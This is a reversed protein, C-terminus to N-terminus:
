TKGIVHYELSELRVMGLKMMAKRNAQLADFAIQDRQLKRPTKRTPASRCKSRCSLGQYKISARLFYSMGVQKIIKKRVTFSFSSAAEFDIAATKEIASGTTDTMTAGNELLISFITLSSCLKATVTTPIRRYVASEQIGLM